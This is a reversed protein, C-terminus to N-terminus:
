WLNSFYSKVAKGGEKRFFSTVSRSIDKVANVTGSYNIEFSLSFGIGLSAGIDAKISGDGFDIHAHAGAGINLSAKAKAETGLITASGEASADILIAEADLNLHVNPNVNGDKDYLGFSTGVEAAVKGVTVEGSANAGILDNGISANGAAHFFTYSAGAAASLAPAFILNGDKDKSLISGVYGAHAEATSVQYEGHVNSYAGNYNYEGDKYSDKVSWNGKVTTKDIVMDSIDGKVKKVLDAWSDIDGSVIDGLIGGIYTLSDRVAETYGKMEILAKLEAEKTETIVSTNYASLYGVNLVERDMNKSLSTLRRKLAQSTPSDDTFLARYLKMQAATMGINVNVSLLQREVSNM